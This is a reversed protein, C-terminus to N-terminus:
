HADREGEENPVAYRLGGGYLFREITIYTMSRLVSPHKPRGRLYIWGGSRLHGALFEWSRITEGPRFKKPRPM